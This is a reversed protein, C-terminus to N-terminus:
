PRSSNILGNPEPAPGQGETTRLGPGLLFVTVGLGLGDLTEGGSDLLRSLGRWQQQSVTATVHGTVDVSLLLNEEEKPPHVTVHM